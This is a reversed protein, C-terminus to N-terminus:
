NLYLHFIKNFYEFASKCFYIKIVVNEYKSVRNIIVNEYKSEHNIVVNEKKSEHNIVM